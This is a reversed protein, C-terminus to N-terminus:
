IGTRQFLEENSIDPFKSQAVTYEKVAARGQPTNLGIMNPSISTDPLDPKAILQDTQAKVDGAVAPAM